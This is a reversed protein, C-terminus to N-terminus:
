RTVHSVYEMWVIKLPPRMGNTDAIAVNIPIIIMMSRNSTTNVNSASTTAGASANAM